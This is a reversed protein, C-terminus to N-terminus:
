VNLFPLPISCLVFFLPRHITDRPLDDVALVPAIVPFHLLPNYVIRIWLPVANLPRASFDQMGDLQEPNLNSESGLGSNLISAMKGVDIFSVQSRSQRGEHSAHRLQPQNNPHELTEGGQLISGPFVVSQRQHGSAFAGM